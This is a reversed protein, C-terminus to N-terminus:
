SYGKRATMALWIPSSTAAGSVRRVHRFAVAGPQAAVGTISERM